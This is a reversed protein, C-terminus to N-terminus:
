ASIHSCLAFSTRMNDHVTSRSTVGHPPFFLWALYCLLSVASSAFNFIHSPLLYAAANMNWIEAEEITIDGAAILKETGLLYTGRCTDNAERLSATGTAILPLFWLFAALAFLGARQWERCAGVRRVCKYWYKEFRVPSEAVKRALRDMSALGLM